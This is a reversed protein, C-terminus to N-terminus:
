CGATMMFWLNLSVGKHMYFGAMANCYGSQMKNVQTKYGWPSFFVSWINLSSWMHAKTWM